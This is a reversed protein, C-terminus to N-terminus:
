RMKINLTKNIADKGIYIGFLDSMFIDGFDFENGDFYVCKNEIRLTHIM